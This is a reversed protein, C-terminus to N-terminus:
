FSTVVWFHRESWMLSYCYCPLYLSNILLIRLWTSLLRDFHSINIFAASFTTLLCELALNPFPPWSNWETLWVMVWISNQRTNIKMKGCEFANGNQGLHFHCREILTIYAEFDCIIQAISFFITGFTSCTDFVHKSHFWYRNLNTYSIWEHRNEDCCIFFFWICNWKILICIFEGIFNGCRLLLCNWFLLDYITLTSQM